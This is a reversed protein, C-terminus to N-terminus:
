ARALRSSTPHFGLPSSDAVLIVQATCTAKRQSRQSTALAYLNVEARSRVRPLYQTDSCHSLGTVKDWESTSQCPSSVDSRRIKRLRSPSEIHPYGLMGSSAARPTIKKWTRSIGTSSSGASPSTLPSPRTSGSEADKTSCHSVVQPQRLTAVPLAQPSESIM